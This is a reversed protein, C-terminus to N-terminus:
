SQEPEKPETTADPERSSLYTGAAALSLWATSLGLMVAPSLGSM